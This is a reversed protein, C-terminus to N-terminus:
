SLLEFLDNANCCDQMSMHYKEKIGDDVDFYHYGLKEALIKGTTSKGINSMGFILVIM